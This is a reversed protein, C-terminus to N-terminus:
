HAEAWNIGHGVEVDLPVRLPMVQSMAQRLLDTVAQREAQPAEVILEDHVQLILRAQLKQRTLEAHVRLMALKILDAASGQIPTNMAIREAGQRLNGNHSRLNPLYRRRGTLTEVYGRERAVEITRDLYVRIRPYRAFYKFIYQSAEARPIHLNRSLGFESLGYLIGFNIAKARRRKEADSADLHGLIEQATRAHIDEGRQFAEVFLEDESLHAMLRLEIQSYDASLLEWGPPAIFASRIRRGDDSRIPINQLNPDSSSLRGTATGSQNFHTHVRGTDRVVMKPLADVYTSRLKTLLRHRLVVQPLEYSKALVELVESDTSYGTKTKRVPPYGLKEFFLYALQKPSDLNIPAGILAYAQEQIVGLRQNFEQSLNALHQTDVLVGRQEMAALVEVLPMEIDRYVHHGGVAEVQPVLVDCLKLAVDADEAAYETATSIDISDFGRKNKGTGCVDTYAITQHGLVDRSLADLSYSPRAPDVVYAAVLSDDVVGRLYVGARHLVVSDYKIHQGVKGVTPDSLLPGIRQLVDKLELQKPVGLYHHGIPIYAASMGAAALSIGVIDARAADLSTTELDVSLRNAQRLHAVIQDLEALHFITRYAARDILYAAAPLAPASAEL